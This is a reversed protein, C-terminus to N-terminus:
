MVRAHADDMEIRAYAWPGVNGAKDVARVRLHDPAYGLRSLTRKSKRSAGGVPEWGGFPTLRELDYRRIGTRGAALRRDHGRWDVTVLRGDESVTTAEIIAQPETKARSRTFIATFTIRSGRRAIGLGVYNIGRALMQRRHPPSHYWWRAMRRSGSKLKPGITHGINELVTSAQVGRRDLVRSADDGDPEIHSFYRREAMDASRARAVRSTREDIALPKRGNRVRIRNIGKLVRSEAAQLRETGAVTRTGAQTTTPLLIAAAIMALAIFRLSHLPERLM